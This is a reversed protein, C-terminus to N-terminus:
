PAPRSSEYEVLRSLVRGRRPHDPWRKLLRGYSDRAERRRGADWEADAARTVTDRDDPRLQAARRLWESCPPTRYDQCNELSVMGVDRYPRSPKEERDLIEIECDDPRPPVPPGIRSVSAPSCALLLATLAAGAAPIPRRASM